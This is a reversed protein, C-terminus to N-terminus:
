KGRRIERDPRFSVQAAVGYAFARHLQQFVVFWFPTMLAGTITLVILQWLTGLGVPPGLGGTLLLLLTLVPVGASAAAGLVLRAFLENRMVFERTAHLTIGFVILPVVTLGLPNMSVADLMLGGGLAVAVISSLTGSLAAYVMLSPLLDLQVGSLQRVGDFSSQWFVALVAVIALIVTEAKM